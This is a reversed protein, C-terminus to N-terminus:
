YDGFITTGGDPTSLTVKDIKGILTNYVPPVGGVWYITGPLTPIFGGAGSQRLLLTISEMHGSVEGVFTIACNATLTLDVTSNGAFTFQRSAGSNAIATVKNSALLDGVKLKATSGEPSQTVDSVNVVLLLDDHSFESITAQDTTKMNPM